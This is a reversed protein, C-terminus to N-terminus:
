NEVTMFSRYLKLFDSLKLNFIGDNEGNGRPESEGWPNRLTVFRSGEKELYGLISYAHDAYVGTNTYRASEDEGFTGAGAPRKGDVASKIENWMSDENSYACMESLGRAGLCAEWVDTSRGGNGIADYSGKWQAYAKEVLPFWLEMSKETKDGGSSGYLPGGWARAYLDGDVTVAVDKYKGSSWDRKKFTVTYSGDGNDKIMNEIAEPRCQALAAMAAPFYCDGIQGQEVDDPKVGDKFLPGTFRKLQFRPKGNADLEDKHLAPDPIDVGPGPGEGGGPVTLAPGAELAFDTNNKGDSSAVKIVDGAKGNLKLDKPLQGEGDIQVATKEGTRVNTFQLKANPESIQRSANINTVSIKGDGLDALGIRFLAAQANRTDAVGTNAQVTVWEGVKGQDDRARMRIIDGAQMEPMPGSFKGTADTKGLVFTDDNHLRKEPATSLNIAEITVNPGAMGAIGNRQDATLVIKLPDLSATDLPARGVAAELFNKASASLPVTGKDLITCVDKQEGKSLGALVIDLQQQRSLGPASLAVLTKTFTSRSSDGLAALIQVLNSDDITQNASEMQNYLSSLKTDRISIPM